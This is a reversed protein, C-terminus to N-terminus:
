SPSAFMRRWWPKRERRDPLRRTVATAQERWRDRNTSQLEGLLGGAFRRCAKLQRVLGTKRWKTAGDNGACGSYASPNARRSLARQQMLHEAFLGQVLKSFSPALIADPM